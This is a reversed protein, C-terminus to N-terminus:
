PAFVKRLLSMNLNLFIFINSLEHCTHLSEGIKPYYYSSMQIKIIFFDNIFKFSKKKMKKIPKELNAIECSSQIQGSIYSGTQACSEDPLIKSIGFKQM